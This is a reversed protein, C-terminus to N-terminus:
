GSIRCNNVKIGPMQYLADDDEEDDCFDDILYDYKRLEDIYKSFSHPDDHCCFTVINDGDSNFMYLWLRLNGPKFVFAITSIEPKPSESDFGNYSDLQFDLNDTLLEVGVFETNDVETFGEITITGSPTNIEEPTFEWTEYAWGLDIKDKGLFYVSDIYLKM